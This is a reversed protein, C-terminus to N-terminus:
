ESHISFLGMTQQPSPKVADPPRMVLKCLRWVIPLYCWAGIANALSGAIADLPWRESIGSQSALRYAMLLLAGAATAGPLQRLADFATDNWLELPVRQRVALHLVSFLFRLFPLGQWIVLMSLILGFGSHNAEVEYTRHWRGSNVPQQLIYILSTVFWLTSATAWITGALRVHRLARLYAPSLSVVATSRAYDLIPM